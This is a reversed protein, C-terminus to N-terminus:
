KAIELVIDADADFLMDSSSLDKTTTSESSSEDSSLEVVGIRRQDSELTLRTVDFSRLLLFANIIHDLNRPTENSLL